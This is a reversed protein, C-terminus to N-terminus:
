LYSISCLSWLASTKSDKATRIHGQLCMLLVLSCRLIKKQRAKAAKSFNVGVGFSSAWRDLLGVMRSFSRSDMGGQLDDPCRQPPQIAGEPWFPVPHLSTASPCNQMVM